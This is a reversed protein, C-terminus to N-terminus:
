RKERITSSNVKLSEHLERDLASAEEDLPDLSLAKAVEDLANPIDGENQFSRATSLHTEVEGKQDSPRNDPSQSAIIEEKLIELEQNEPEELLGLAIAVLADETKNDALLKRINQVILSSENTELEVAPQENGDVTQTQFWEQQVEDELSVLEKNLPDLVFARAIDDLAKEFEGREQHERASSLLQDLEESPTGTEEAPKGQGHAALIEGELKKVQNDMPNMQFALAVEALAEDFAGLAMASRAEDLHHQLQKELQEVRQKDEEELKALQLRHEEEDLRQLEEECVRAREEEAHLRQQKVQYLYEDEQSRIKLECAQLEENAPDIIYARALMSLAHSFMNRAALENAQTLHKQVTARVAEAKKKQADNEQEKRDRILIAIENRLAVARDNAPDVMLIFRVEHLAEDLQHQEVFEEARQLYEAIKQLMVDKRTQMEQSYRAEQEKRALESHRDRLEQRKLEIEAEHENQRASMKESEQQIICALRQEDDALSTNRPDLLLARAIEARAREFDKENEFERAREIMGTIRAALVPKMSGQKQLGVGNPANGLSKKKDPSGNGSSNASHAAILQYLREEYASAYPNKSDVGRAEKVLKLAEDFLHKKVLTDAQKLLQRVHAAQESEYSSHM